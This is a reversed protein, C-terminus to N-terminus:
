GRVGEGQPLPPVFPSGQKAGRRLIRIACTPRNHRVSLRHIGTTAESRGLSEHERALQAVPGSGRFTV